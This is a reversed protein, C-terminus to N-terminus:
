QRVGCEGVAMLLAKASLAAEWYRRLVADVPDANKSGHIFEARCFAMQPGPCPIGRRNCESMARLARHRAMRILYNVFAMNAYQRMGDNQSLEIGSGYKVLQACASALIRAEACLSAAAHYSRNSLVSDADPMLAAHYRRAASRNVVYVTLDDDSAILANFAKEPSVNHKEAIAAVTGSMLTKEVAEWASYFLSEAQEVRTGLPINPLIKAAPVRMRAERLLNNQEWLLMFRKLMELRFWAVLIADMKGDTALGAIDVVAVAPSVKELALMRSTAQAIFSGQREFQAAIDPVGKEDPAFVYSRECLLVDSHRIREESELVLMRVVGALEKREANTLNNTKSCVPHESIFEKRFKVFPGIAEWAAIQRSMSDTAAALFGASFMEEYDTGFFADKLADAMECENPLNGADGGRWKELTKKFSRYQSVLVDDLVEDHSLVEGVKGTFIGPADVGHVYAYLEAINAVPHVDVNLEKGLRLLDVVGGGVREDQEEFRHFLPICIRKKGRRVAAKVKQAVGGVLGITGDPMITGTMAFDNPITRGDLASLIALCLVGGASPGDTGGSLDFDLHVGTLPDNRAVGATVAALWIAARFSDGTGLPLDDSVSIKLPRDSDEREYRMRIEGITGKANDARVALVPISVNKPSLQAEARSFLCISIAISIVAEVKM